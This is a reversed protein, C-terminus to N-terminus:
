IAFLLSIYTNMSVLLNTKNQTTVSRIVFVMLFWSWVNSKLILSLMVLMIMLVELFLQIGKSFSVKYKLDVADSIIKELQEIKFKRLVPISEYDFNKTKLAEKTENDQKLEPAGCDLKVSFMVM